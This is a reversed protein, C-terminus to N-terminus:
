LDTQFVPGVSKSREDATVGSSLRLRNLDFRTDAPGRGPYAGDTSERIKARLEMRMADIERELRRMAEDMGDKVLEEYPIPHGFMVAVPCSWPTPSKRHRPWADFCGEVAAPVVPCRGRKVLLAVGRKFGRMAGDPTRNGEPFILVAHGTSLRSLVQKIAGMDGSQEKIAICNLAKLLLGFPGFRFLGSRAIYDTHRPRVSSGVLPPDLFSQHNAAILVAGRQPVRDAHYARARFTVLNVLAIAVRALEYFLIWGLGTGPNRQRISEWMPRSFLTRPDDTSSQALQSRGSKIRNRVGGKM